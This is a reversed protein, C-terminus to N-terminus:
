SPLNEIATRLNSDALHAYRMTMTINVHGMLDKVVPLPTDVQILWSAFTHRLDHWHIHDLGSNTRARVWQKRLQAPTISLPMRAAIHLARPHLPITRPRDNKTRANLRLADNVIDHRTARFMESWRLGTFAAFVIMDGAEPLTCHICLCEIEARTLYYHRENREPLLKIKKSLPQDIWDWEEFALRCLRRLIALRRNITAPKLKPWCKRMERAIEPAASLPKNKLLPRILNANSIYTHANRLYPVYADLWKDLANDLTHQPSFTRLQQHEFSRADAYTWKRSSTRQPSANPRRVTVEWVGSDVRRKVSMICTSEM